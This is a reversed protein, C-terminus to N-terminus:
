LARVQVAARASQRSRKTCADVTFGSPTKKESKSGRRTASKATYVLFFFLKLDIYISDDYLTYYSTRTYVADVAIECCVWIYTYLTYHAPMRARIAYYRALSAESNRARAARRTNYRFNVDACSM